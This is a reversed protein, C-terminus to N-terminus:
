NRNYIIREWRDKCMYDPCTKIAKPLWTMNVLTDCGGESLPLTHDVQWETRKYQPPLPYLAEFRKRETVSRVIKGSTNRKPEGGCYRPDINTTPEAYAPSALLLSTILLLIFKTMILWKNTIAADIRTRKFM